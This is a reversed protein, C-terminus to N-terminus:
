IKRQKRYFWFLFVKNFYESFPQHNVFPMVLAATGSDPNVFCSVLPIINNEGNARKLISIERDPIFLKLNKIM